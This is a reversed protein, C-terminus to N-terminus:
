SEPSKSAEGTKPRTEDEGKVASRFSRIGEGLGKAVEPIRRAGFLLVVIFLILLIEGLGLTGIVLLPSMAAEKAGVGLTLM